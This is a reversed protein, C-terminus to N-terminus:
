TFGSTKLHGFAKIVQKLREESGRDGGNADPHFRKVLEKYRAKAEQLTATEELNLIILADSQAKTLRRVKPAPKVPEADGDFVAYGDEVHFNAGAHKPGGAGRKGLPWTPRHGTLAEVTHRRIEDDSMGAFFNWSENHARLHERCLWVREDMSDRDKPVRAEAAGLCGAKQCRQPEPKKVKPKRTPSSIRIDFGFKPTYSKPSMRPM